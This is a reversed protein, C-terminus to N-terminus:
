RMMTMLDDDCSYHLKAKAYDDEDKGTSDLLRTIVLKEHSFGSKPEQEMTMKELVTPWYGRVSM